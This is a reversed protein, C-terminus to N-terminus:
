SEAHEWRQKVISTSTILCIRRGRRVRRRPAPWAARRPMLPMAGRRGGSARRRQPATRRRAARRPSPAALAGPHVLFCIGFSWSSVFSNFVSVFRRCKRISFWLYLPFSNFVSVFCKCKRKGTKTILVRDDFLM